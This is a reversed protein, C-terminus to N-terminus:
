FVELIFHIHYQSIFFQFTKRLIQNQTFIVTRSLSIVLIIRQEHMQIKNPFAVCPVLCCLDLSLDTISSRLYLSFLYVWLLVISEKVDVQKPEEESFDVEERKPEDGGQEVNEVGEEEVKMADIIALKTKLQDGITSEAIGWAIDDMALSQTDPLLLNVHDIRQKDARYYRIQVMSFRHLSCFLKSSIIDSSIPRNFSPIGPSMTRRQEIEFLHSFQSFVYSIEFRFSSVM